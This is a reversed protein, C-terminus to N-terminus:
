LNDKIKLSAVIEETPTVYVTSNTEYIVMGPKSGSPKKVHKKKTYDVPVQSSMKGKSFYAALMAGEYITNESIEKGACKIIVHSGPINKTHMWIDDPDAIRLTLHDNQKNNKGVLIKFGDSSIFEHPSTTLKNLEKKSKLKGPSKAYGLSILEDKIDQLEALNECNDINLLINELYDIEEKSIDMQSTIEKKATKLKNYKKFYKQSNESPTLNEKLKITINEYDPDYFNQVEISEMGKQIMYIYATLLEGKLKYEDANEAEKLEQEQKEQKHYLRELKISISKRLDSARQHIRDKIDKTKYYDELITSMSEKSIFKLENYLSLNICSFDIVKDIKENLVICPSYNNNKIDNFLNNFEKYLTNLENSSLECINSKENINARFCIEKSIIPSIGLFKSYIGKFLPGDYSSLIENFTSESINDIPNLKDQSPPLEDTLGPLIQRARSVSTPIRKASDIIKNDANHTLIINSHRGMIEIYIDKTTKEKLEDLSDVSIKIIREFGIQSISVINGSQIYKRFLMCFMPAKKPNEKKYDNAIYVRPNSSSCSLVLKYNEKNNRIYLVIEDEEPQHVKDIKGGLLKSSLEDVLSHIVLGDLAM